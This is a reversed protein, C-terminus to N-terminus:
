CEATWENCGQPGDMCSYPWEDQTCSWGGATVSVCVLGQCDICCKEPAPADAAIAFDNPILLAAAFLLVSAMIAINRKVTELM